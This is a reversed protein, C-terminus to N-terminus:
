WWRYHAYARNDEARRHLERKKKIVTGQQYLLLIAHLVLFKQALDCVQWSHGRSPFAVAELVVRLLSNASNWVKDRKNWRRLYM